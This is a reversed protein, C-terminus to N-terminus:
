NTYASYFHIKNNNNNNNDYDIYKLAFFAMRRSFTYQPYNRKMFDLIERRSLNQLVYHQIDNKLEEDNEWDSNRIRSM